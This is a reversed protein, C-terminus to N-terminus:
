VSNDRSEEVQQKEFTESSNLQIQIEASSDESRNM